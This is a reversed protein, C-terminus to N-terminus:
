VSLLLASEILRVSFSGSNTRTQGSVGDDLSSGIGEPEGRTANCLVCREVREQERERDISSQSKRRQRCIDVRVYM